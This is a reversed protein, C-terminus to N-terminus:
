AAIRFYGSRVIHEVYARSEMSQDYDCVALTIDNIDTAVVYGFIFLEMLPMLLIMSFMRQDRTLQVFEKWVVHAIRSLSPGFDLTWLGFYSSEKPDNEGVKSRPSQVKSEM